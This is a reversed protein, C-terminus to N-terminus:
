AGVPKLVGVIRLLRVVLHDTTDADGVTPGVDEPKQVGRASAWSEVLDRLEELKAHQVRGLRDEESATQDLRAALTEIDDSLLAHSLGAADRALARLVAAGSRLRYAPWPTSGGQEEWEKRMSEALVQETAPAEYAAIRAAAHAYRRREARWADLFLDVEELTPVRGLLRALSAISQANPSQALNDAHISCALSVIFASDIPSTTEVTLMSGDARPISMVHTRDPIM